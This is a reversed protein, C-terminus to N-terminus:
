IQCFVYEKKFDVPTIYKKKFNVLSVLPVGELARSTVQTSLPELNLLICETPHV